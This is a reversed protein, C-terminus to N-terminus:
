WRFLPVPSPPNGKQGLLCKTEWTFSEDLTTLGSLNSFNARRPYSPYSSSGKVQSLEEGGCLRPRFTVQSFKLGWSPEIVQLGHRLTVREWIEVKKFEHIHPAYLRTEQPSEFTDSVWESLHLCQEYNTPGFSVARVRRRPRSAGFPFVLERRNVLTLGQQVPNIDPHTVM